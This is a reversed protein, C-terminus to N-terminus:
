RSDFSSLSRCACVSQADLAAGSAVTSVTIACMAVFFTLALLIRGM